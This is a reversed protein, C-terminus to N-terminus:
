DKDTYKDTILHKINNRSEKIKGLSSLIKQTQSKEFGQQNRPRLALTTTQRTLIQTRLKEIQDQRAQIMYPESIIKDKSQTQRPTQINNQQIPELGYALQTSPTNKASQITQFNLKPNVGLYNQIQESNLPNLVISLKNANWLNNKDYSLLDRVQDKRKSMKISGTGQLGRLKKRISVENSDGYITSLSTEHMRRDSPFMRATQPQTSASQGGASTVGSRVQDDQEEESFRVNETLRKKSNGSQLSPPIIRHSRGSGFYEERSMQNRLTMTFEGGGVTTFRDRLKVGHQLDLLQSPPQPKIYKRETDTNSLMVIQNPNNSYNNSEYRQKILTSVSDKYQDFITGKKRAPIINLSTQVRRLKKMKELFAEDSQNRILKTGIQVPKLKEMNLLNYEIKKGKFDTTFTFIQEEKKNNPSHQNSFSSLDNNYQNKRMKNQRSQSQIRLKQEQIRLQRLEEKLKSTRMKEVFQDVELEENPKEEDQFPKLPISKPPQSMRQTQLMQLRTNTRSALSRPTSNLANPAFDTFTSFGGNFMKKSPSRRSRSTGSKSNAKDFILQKQPDVEIYRINHPVLTCAWQDRPCPVPERLDEDDNNDMNFSDSCPLSMPKDPQRLSNKYGLTMTEITHQVSFPVKRLDLEKDYIASWANEYLGEYALHAQIITEPQYKFNLPNRIENLQSAPRDSNRSKIVNDRNMAM